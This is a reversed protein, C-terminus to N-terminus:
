NGVVSGGGGSGEISDGNGSNVPPIHYFDIDNLYFLILKIM